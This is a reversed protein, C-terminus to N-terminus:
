TMMRMINEADGPDDMDCTYDNIAVYNKYNIINLPTRNIVQWIEWMIPERAFLGAAAYEKTKWIAKEFSKYDCVKVAFPEAWEKVYRKDFPPSSAFFEISDTETEVITKIAAPSFVVDGFIYCVPEDLICFGDCWYGSEKVGDKSVTFDNQHYLVPVGFNQYIKPNNSSIVIDTVGQAKLLRIIRAINPEGFIKNLQRPEEWKKYTGGCMIIYKM